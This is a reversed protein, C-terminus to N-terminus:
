AGHLILAFDVALQLGVTQKALPELPRWPNLCKNRRKFLVSFYVSGYGGKGAHLGRLSCYVVKERFRLYSGNEAEGHM